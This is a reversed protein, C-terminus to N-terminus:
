PRMMSLAADQDQYRVELPVAYPVDRSGFVVLVPMLLTIAVLSVGASGIRRWMM